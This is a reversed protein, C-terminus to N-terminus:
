GLFNCLAGVDGSLAISLQTSIKICLPPPPPTIAPTSSIHVFHTNTDLFSELVRTAVGSLFQFHEEIVDCQEFWQTM